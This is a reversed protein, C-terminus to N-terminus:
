IGNIDVENMMNWNMCLKGDPYLILKQVKDETLKREMEEYDSMEFYVKMERYAYEFSYYYYGQLIRKLCFESEDLEELIDSLDIRNEIVYEATKGIDVSKDFVALERFVVDEIGMSRAFDLYKNIGTYDCIGSKQFVCVMRINLSESLKKVTQTFIKNYKIQENRNFCMISNNLDEDFHHRSCEIRTLGIKDLIAKLDYKCFGSLNSYMVKESINGYNMVIEEIAELMKPSETPEKGSISLFIKRDSLKDLIEKLREGYNSCMNRCIMARGNRNLRESCFKCNASCENYIYPTFSIIKSCDIKEIPVKSREAIRRYDAYFKM